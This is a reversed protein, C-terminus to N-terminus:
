SVNGPQSNMNLVTIEQFFYQKTGDSKLEWIRDHFSVCYLDVQADAVAPISAIVNFELRVNAIGKNIVDSRKSIVFVYLRYWKKFSENSKIDDAIFNNSYSM